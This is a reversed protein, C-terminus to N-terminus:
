KRDPLNEAPTRALVRNIRSKYDGLLEQRIYPPNGIIADFRDPLTVAGSIRGGPEVDFFDSIAVQAGTQSAKSVADGSRDIGFLENSDRFEFSHQALESRSGPRGRGNSAAALAYAMKTSRAAALLRGDGCSPDFVLDSASRIGFAALLRAVVDPTYHQGYRHRENETKPM